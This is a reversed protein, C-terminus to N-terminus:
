ASLDLEALVLDTISHTAMLIKLLRKATEIDMRNIADQAFDNLMGQINTVELALQTYAIKWDTEM